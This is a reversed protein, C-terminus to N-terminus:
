SLALRVSADNTTAGRPENRLKYAINVKHLQAPKAHRLVTSMDCHLRTHNLFQVHLLVVLIRNKFGIAISTSIGSPIAAAAGYM